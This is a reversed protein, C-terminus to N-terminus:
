KDIMKLKEFKFRRHKLINSEFFWNIETSIQCLLKPKLHSTLLEVEGKMGGGRDSGFYLVGM